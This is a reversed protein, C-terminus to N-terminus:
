EYKRAERRARRLREREDFAQKGIKSEKDLDRAAELAAIAELLKAETYPTHAGTYGRSYQLLLAPYLCRYGIFQQQETTAHPHEILQRCEAVVNSLTADDIEEVSLTACLLYIRASLDREAARAKREPHQAQPQVEQIKGATLDDVPLVAYPGKKDSVVLCPLAMVGAYLAEAQVQAEARTHCETPLVTVQLDANKPLAAKVMKEAAERQSEDKIYVLYSDAMCPSTFLIATIGCFLLGCLMKNARSAQM